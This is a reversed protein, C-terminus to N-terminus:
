LEVPLGLHERYVADRHALLAPSLAALTPADQATFMPRLSAPMPLQEHPLPSVLNCFTAWYVDLASFAGLLYEGGAERSRTLLADLGELVEVVRQPAAAASDPRHGYKRGLWAAMPDPPDARLGADVAMLRRCWGLGMEGCIEHAYGFLRARMAEDRPVLGAEPALRDVLLLIEAWGSRSAEDEYIAAPYSEQGTWERLLDEPDDDARHVPLWPIGAVELLGKAAQSWPSPLGPLLVLRLGTRERAERLSVAGKM